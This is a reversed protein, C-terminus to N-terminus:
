APSKEHYGHKTAWRLVAYINKGSHVIRIKGHWEAEVVWHDNHKHAESFVRMNNSSTPARM